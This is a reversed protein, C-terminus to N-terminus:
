LLMSLIHWNGAVYWLQWCYMLTTLLMGLDAVVHGHHRFHYWFKLAWSLTACYLWRFRICVNSGLNYLLIWFPGTSGSNLRRDRFIFRLMSDPFPILSVYSLLQYVKLEPIPCRFWPRFSSCLLRSIFRDWLSRVDFRNRTRLPNSIRYECSLRYPLLSGCVGLCFVM